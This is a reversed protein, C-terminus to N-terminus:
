KPCFKAMEFSGIIVKGKPSWSQDWECTFVFEEINEGPNSNDVIKKGIPCTFTVESQYAHTSPDSANFTSIGHYVLDYPPVCLRDLNITNSM